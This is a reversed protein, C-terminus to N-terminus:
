LSKEMIENLFNVLNELVIAQQEALTIDANDDM